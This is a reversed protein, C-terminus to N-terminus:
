LATAGPAADSPPADATTADTPPPAFAARALADRMVLARLETTVDVLDTMSSLPAERYHRRDPTFVCERWGRQQLWDWLEEHMGATVIMRVHGYIVYAGVPPTASLTPLARKRRLHLLARAREPLSQLM